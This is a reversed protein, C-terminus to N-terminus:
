MVRKVWPDRFDLLGLSVLIVELAKLDQVVQLDKSDQLVRFVLQEQHAVQVKVVVKDKHVQIEQVV